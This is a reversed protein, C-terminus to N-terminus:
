FEMQYFRTLQDSAPAAFFVFDQLEHEIHIHARVVKGLDDDAVLVKALALVKNALRDHVLSQFSKLENSANALEFTMGQLSTIDAESVGLLTALFKKDLRM